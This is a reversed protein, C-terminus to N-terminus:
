ALVASNRLIDELIKAARPTLKDFHVEAQNKGKNTWAVKATLKTSAAPETVSVKEKKTAAKGTASSKGAPLLSLVVEDGPNFSTKEELELLASAISLNVINGKTKAVKKGKENAGSILANITTQFQKEIRFKNTIYRELKSAVDQPDVPKRLWDAADHYAFLELNIADIIVQEPFTTILIPLRTSQRLFKTLSIGDTDPLDIDVIILSLPKSQALEIAEQGTNAIYISSGPLHDKIIESTMVISSKIADVILIHTM